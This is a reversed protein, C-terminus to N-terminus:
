TGFASTCIEEMMGCFRLRHRDLMQPMQRALGETTGARHQIDHVIRREGVHIVAFSFALARSVFGKGGGRAHQIKECAQDALDADVRFPHILIDAAGADGDRFQRIRQHPQFTEAETFCM